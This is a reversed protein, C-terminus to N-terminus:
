IGEKKWERVMGNIDNQAILLIDSIANLRFTVNSETLYQEHQKIENFKKRSKQLYRQLM